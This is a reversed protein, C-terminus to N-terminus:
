QTFQDVQGTVAPVSQYKINLIRRVQVAVDNGFRVKHQDLLWPWKLLAELPGL